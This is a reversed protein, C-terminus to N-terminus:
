ARGSGGTEGAPPAGPTQAAEQGEQSRSGDQSRVEKQGQAGAPQTTQHTRAAGSASLPVGAAQLRKKQQARQQTTTLHVAGYAVLLVGFASVAAGAVTVAFLQRRADPPLNPALGAISAALAIILCVVIKFILPALPATRDSIAAGLGLAVLLTALVAAGATFFSSLDALAADDFSRAAVLGGIYGVLVLLASAVRAANNSAAYKVLGSTM